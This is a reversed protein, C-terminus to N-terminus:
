QSFSEKQVACGTLSSVNHLRNCTHKGTYHEEQKKLFFTIIFDGHREMHEYEVDM